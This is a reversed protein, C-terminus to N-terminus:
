VHLGIIEDANIIVYAILLYTISYVHLVISVIFGKDRVLITKGSCESWAVGHLM